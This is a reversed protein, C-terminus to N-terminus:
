PEAFVAILAVSAGEGMDARAVRSEVRRLTPEDTAAIILEVRWEQGAMRVRGSRRGPAPWPEALKLEEIANSAVLRAIAREKQDALSRTELAAAALLAALAIALVAIAVLVELLLFGRRM